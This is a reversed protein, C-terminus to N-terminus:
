SKKAWYLYIGIGILVLVLVPMPPTPTYSFITMGGIYITFTHAAQKFSRTVIFYQWLFAIIATPIIKILFHNTPLLLALGQQIGILIPIVVFTFLLIYKILSLLQDQISKTLKM